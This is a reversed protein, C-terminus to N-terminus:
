LEGARVAERGLVVSAPVAGSVHARQSSMSTGLKAASTSLADRLRPSFLALVVFVAFFSLAGISALRLAHRLPVAPNRPAAARRSM